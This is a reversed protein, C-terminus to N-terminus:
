FNYVTFIFLQSVNNLAYVAYVQKELDWCGLTISFITMKLPTLPDPIMFNPGFTDALLWSLKEKVVAYRYKNPM